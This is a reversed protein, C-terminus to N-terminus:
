GRPWCSRLRPKWRARSRIRALRALRHRARARDIDRPAAGAVLRGCTVGTTSAARARRPSLLKLAILDGRRAVPLALGPVVTMREAARAVESEIGALSFFLDSACVAPAPSTSRRWRGLSTMAGCLRSGSIVGLRSAGRRPPGTPRGDIAVVVDVDLTARAEPTLRSPL